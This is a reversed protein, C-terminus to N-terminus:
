IAFKAISIYIQYKKQEEALSIGNSKSMMSLSARLWFITNYVVAPNSTDTSTSETSATTSQKKKFGNAFGFNLALYCHGVTFPHNM